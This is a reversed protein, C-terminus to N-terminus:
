STGAVGVHVHSHVSAPGGDHAVVLMEYAYPLKPTQLTPLPVIASDPAHVAVFWTVNKFSARWTAGGATTPPQAPPVDIGGVAVLV